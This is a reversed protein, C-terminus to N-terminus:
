EFFAHATHSASTPIIVTIPQTIASATGNKLASSPKIDLKNILPKVQLDIDKFYSSM